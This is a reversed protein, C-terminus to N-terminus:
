LPLFSRNSFLSPGIQPFSVYEQTASLANASLLLFAPSKKKKEGYYLTPKQEIILECMYFRTRAGGRLLFSDVLAFLLLFLFSFFSFFLLGGNKEM